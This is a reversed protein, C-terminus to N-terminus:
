FAYYVERQIKGNLIYEVDLTTETISNITYNIEVATPNNTFTERLTDGNDRLRWKGVLNDSNVFTGMKTNLPDSNSPDSTYTKTYRLQYDTLTQKVGNIYIEKLHWYRNGLGTLLRVVRDERTEPADATKSCGIMLISCILITLLTVRAKM